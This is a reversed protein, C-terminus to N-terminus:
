DHRDAQITMNLKTILGEVRAVTSAQIAALESGEAYYAVGYLWLYDELRDKIFQLDDTSITM